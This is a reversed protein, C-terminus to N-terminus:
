NRPAAPAPVIKLKLTEGGRKVVVEYEDGAKMTGMATMYDTINKVDNGALKVIKDNAKLGAKDAPSGARVGDIGMGDTFEAYSPITGLSVSVSVRGGTGSSKAVTYTPRVPNQDVEKVLAAIYAIVNEEGEYNIKDATDSPKHYDLHTGTFFFLVPMQKLYFSAHDSPGVGDENLTLNFINLPPVDTKIYTMGGTNSNPIIAAQNINHKEVLEKWESASGIGGITLKNDHLRGVMDLNFMAVTKEIPFVPNNAYYKSGFLGEEEGSFAIFIITRKNNKALSFQRALEIIAATGSANDDAGHHIETSNAVLSGQGGRGLHDYHAGVVIAEGRLAKDRGELIGIVNYATRPKETKPTEDAKNLASPTYGFQQLYGAKGNKGTAGPRLKLKAFQNAIYGAAYTAGPTGTRRGELKDSALYTIHKRLNKQVLDVGAPPATQAYGITVSLILFLFVNIKKM